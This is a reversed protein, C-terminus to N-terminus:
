DSGRNIKEYFDRREERKNDDSGNWFFDRLDGQMITLDGITEKFITLMDDVVKAEKHPIKNDNVYWSITCQNRNMM